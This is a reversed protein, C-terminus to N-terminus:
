PQSPARLIKIKDELEALDRDREGEVDLLKLHAEVLSRLRVEFQARQRKLEAIDDHIQALRNHAQGLIKEAQLEAEAVMLQAEREANDKIEAAREKTQELTAKLNQERERYYQLEHTAKDMSRSLQAAEGTLAALRDAAQELFAQVEAPDYGRFRRSFEKHRIEEADM